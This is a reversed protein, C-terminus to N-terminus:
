TQPPIAVVSDVNVTTGTVPDLAQLTMTVGIREGPPTTQRLESFRILRVNNALPTRTRGSVMSLTQARVEITASAGSRLRLQLRNANVSVVDSQRITDAVWQLSRRLEAQKSQSGEAHAISQSSARIVAALPVLMVAVLATCVIVELLGLGRRREGAPRVSRDHAALYSANM